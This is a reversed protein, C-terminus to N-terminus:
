YIDLNKALHFITDTFTYRGSLRDYEPDGLNVWSVHCAPSLMNRQVTNSTDNELCNEPDFTVQYASDVITVIYPGPPSCPLGCGSLEKSSVFERSDNATLNFEVSSNNALLGNPVKINLNYQSENKFILTVQYPGRDREVICSGLILIWFFLITNKM